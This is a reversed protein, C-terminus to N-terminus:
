DGSQLGRPNQGAVTHRDHSDCAIRTMWGAARVGASADDERLRVALRENVGKL